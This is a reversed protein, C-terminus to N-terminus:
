DNIMEKLIKRYKMKDYKVFGKYNDILTKKEDWIFDDLERNWYKMFGMVDDLIIMTEITIKKNMFANLLIPHSHAEILIVKDLEHGNEDCFDIIGQVDERFTYELSEQIKTWKTFAEEGETGAMDGVWSNDSMVFNAVFFNVLDKKGYKSQVKRFFFRDRRKMFSGIKANVKGNYKFFDYNSSFHSKLALYTQYAEFGESENYLNM